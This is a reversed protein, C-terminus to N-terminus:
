SKKSLKPILLILLSLFSILSIVLGISVWQQPKYYVRLEYDGNEPLVFSNLNNGFRQSQLTLGQSSLSEAAWNKDFGESFILVDGMKANKVNLRYESPSIFKYNIILNRNKSWFHDKPSNIEFVRVKEFGDMQRLWTIKQLVQVTEEYARKDYKRDKLFIEKESDYPVIIYKIGLERLQEESNLEKLKALQKKVDGKLLEERGIAPHNNSFYGFRQWQPIWLTRFFEPQSVLYDKFLVYDNPVTQPKHIPGSPGFFLPRALFLLYFITFLFFVYSFNFIQYKSQIKSKTFKTINFISYPILISYSLAILIYFKTPDRFMVFGPIHNFMWIYIGGLPDNAGKALFVGILGLLASWVVMRRNKCIFLLSSFALVPLLLFEPKLFYTKGFINEPFNPHLLSISNELNAFSFFKVAEQSSFEHGFQEIPNQNYFITPLIWYSHLLVVLSLPIIFGFLLSKKLYKKPFYFIWFLFIAGFTVYVIRPDFLVQLSLVFGFILSNKFSLSELSKVFLLVVFPVLSYALAIGVQGGTLIMLFYTNVLYIFGSLLGFLKKDPFIKLFLFFAGFFSLLVTPLIWFIFGIIDWSLGFKSFLASFNLYSNIWLSGLASKGVGTNLISDWSTPIQTFNSINEPWFFRFDGVSFITSM